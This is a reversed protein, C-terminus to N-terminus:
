DEAELCSQFSERHSQAFWDRLLTCTDDSARLSLSPPGSSVAPLPPDSGRPALPSHPLQTKSPWCFLLTIAGIGALYLFHQTYSEIHIRDHMM